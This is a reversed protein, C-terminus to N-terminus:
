IPVSMRYLLNVTNGEMLSSVNLKANKERETSLLKTLQIHLMRHLFPDLAAYQQLEPSSKMQRWDANQGFKDVHLHLLRACLKQMGYGHPHNPQLQKALEMIEIARAINIGLDRFRKLDFSANVMAPILRPNQLLAAVAQPFRQSSWAGMETLDFVVTKDYLDDPLSISIVRTISHTEDVNCETDLGYYVVGDKLMALKTAM